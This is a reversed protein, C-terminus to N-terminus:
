QPDVKRIAVSWQGIAVAGNDRLRDKAYQIHNHADTYGDYQEAIMRHALARAAVKGGRIHVAGVSTSDGDEIVEVVAYVIM